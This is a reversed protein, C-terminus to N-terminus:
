YNWWGRSTFNNHGGGDVLVLQNILLFINEPSSLKRALCDFSWVM